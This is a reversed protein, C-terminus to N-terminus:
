SWCDGKGDNREYTRDYGGQIGLMKYDMGGEMDGDGGYSRLWAGEEATNDWLDGMCKHIDNNAIRSM